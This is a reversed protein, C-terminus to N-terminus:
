KRVDTAVSVSVGTCPLASATTRGDTDISKCLEIFRAPYETGHMEYVVGLGLCNECTSEASPGACRRCPQETFGKEAAWEKLETM